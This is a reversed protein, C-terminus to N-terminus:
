AHKKKLAWTGRAVKKFRKDCSLATGISNYGIRRRVKILRYLEIGRLPRPSSELLEAAMDPITRTEVDRWERLAWYGTWGVPAFRRSASLLVGTLKIKRRNKKSSDAAIASHLERFHMPAGRARLVVECRDTYSLEKLPVIFSDEEAARKLNPLSDLITLVEKPTAALRGLKRTIYQWVQRVTIPRARNRRVFQRVQVHVRGLAWSEQQFSAADRRLLRLLLIEQNSVAAPEVGWSEQLAATWSSRLNPSAKQLLCERLELLPAVFEHRFRFQCGCYDEDWIAGRLTNVIENEYLRITERNLTLLKGTKTRANYASVGRLLHRKLVGVANENFTTAIAAECVRPFERIFDRPTAAIASRPLVAFKRLQAFKLWDISGDKQIADALADLTTVVELGKFVGLGALNIIGREARTILQGITEIHARELANIARRSLHAKALGLKREEANLGRLRPSAFYIAKYSRLPPRAKRFRDWNDPQGDGLTRLLANLTRDIRRAATPSSYSLAGREVASIMDGITSPSEREPIAQRGLQLHGIPLNKVWQHLNKGSFRRNNV